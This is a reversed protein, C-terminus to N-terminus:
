DEWPSYSEENGEEESDEWVFGQKASSPGTAHHGPNHQGPFSTEMLTFPEVYVLTCKPACYTKLQNRKMIQM